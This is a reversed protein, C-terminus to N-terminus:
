NLKIVFAPLIQRTDPVVIIRGRGRSDPRVVKSNWGAPIDRSTADEWVQGLVVRCLLLGAGYGASVDPYESFYVGGGFLRRKLMGLQFNKSLINDINDVATGHFLLREKSPVNALALEQQKTLFQDLLTANEVYEITAINKRRIVGFSQQSCKDKVSYMTMDVMRLFTSEAALYLLHLQDTWDIDTTQHQILFKKVGSMAFTPQVHTIPRFIDFTAAGAIVEAPRPKDRCPRPWHQLRRCTCCYSRACSNCTATRCSPLVLQSFLCGPCSWTRDSRSTGRSKRRGEGERWLRAWTQLGATDGVYEECKTLLDRPDQDPLMEVLTSHNHRTQKERNRLFESFEDNDATGDRLSLSSFATILESLRVGFSIDAAPLSSFM